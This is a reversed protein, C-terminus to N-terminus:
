IKDEKYNTSRRNPRFNNNPKIKPFNFYIQTPGNKKKQEFLYSINEQKQVEIM